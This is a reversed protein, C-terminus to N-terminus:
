SDAAGSMRVILCSELRCAVQFRWGDKSVKASQSGGAINKNAVVVELLEVEGFQKEITHGDLAAGQHEPRHAQVVQEPDVHLDAGFAPCAV